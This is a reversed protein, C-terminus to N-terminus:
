LSSKRFKITGAKGEIELAWEGDELVKLLRETKQENAISMERMDAMDKIGIVIATAVLVCLVISSILSVRNIARSQGNLGSM